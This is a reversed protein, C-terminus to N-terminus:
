FCSKMNPGYSTRVAPHVLCVAAILRAFKSILFEFKVCGFAVLRDSLQYGLFRSNSLSSEDTQM